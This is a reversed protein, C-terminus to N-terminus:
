RKTDYLIKEVFRKRWSLHQLFGKFFVYFCLFYLIAKGVKGTTTHDLIAANKPDINRFSHIAWIAGGVTFFM